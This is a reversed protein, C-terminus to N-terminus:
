TACEKAHTAIAHHWFSVVAFSGVARKQLSSFICSATADLEHLISAEEATWPSFFRKRRWWGHFFFPRSIRCTSVHKARVTGTARRMHHSLFFCIPLRNGLLCGSADQVLNLTGSLLGQRQITTEDLLRWGTVTADDWAASLLIERCKYKQVSLRTALVHVHICWSICTFAVRYKWQEHNMRLRFKSPKCTAVQIIM